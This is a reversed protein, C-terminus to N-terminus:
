RPVENSYPIPADGLRLGISAFFQDETNVAIARGRDDVFEHRRNFAYGASLDLWIMNKFGLSWTARARWAEVEYDFDDNLEESFVHWAHGAPFLRVTLRQRQSPAYRIAPDPFALRFTLTENPGYLAGFVPYPAPQGFARDYALGALWHLHEGAQTTGELRATVIIDDGSGADFLDKMINSSTSVGPAVFGGLQWRRNRYDFGIPVQLRHLDRNRGEIGVYEYRTYQYDAGLDLGVEGLDFEFLGLVLRYERSQVESGLEPFEFGSEPVGTFSAATFPYGRDAALSPAGALLCCFLLWRSRSLPEHTSV